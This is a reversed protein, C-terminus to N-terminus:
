AHVSFSWAGLRGITEEKMQRSVNALGTLKFTFYQPISQELGLRDVCITREWVEMAIIQVSSLSVSVFM